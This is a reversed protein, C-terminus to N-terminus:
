TQLVVENKVRDGGTAIKGGLGKFGHKMQTQLGLINEGNNCYPQMYAVENNM